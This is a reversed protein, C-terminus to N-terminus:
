RRREGEWVPIIDYKHNNFLDVIIVYEMVIIIFLMAFYLAWKYSLAMMDLKDSLFYAIISAFFGFAGIVIGIINEKIVRLIV